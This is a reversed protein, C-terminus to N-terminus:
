RNQMLDPKKRSRRKVVSIIFPLLGIAIIIAPITWEGSVLSVCGVAVIIVGIDLGSIRKKSKGKPQSIGLFELVGM